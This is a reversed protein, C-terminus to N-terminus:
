GSYGGEDLYRQEEPRTKRKLIVNRHPFRGFRRIIDRHREAHKAEGASMKRVLEVSRNQDALSESHGFPLYFFMRLPVEIAQDHGSRIARDAVGRAQEDSAYMKPTHRFSNRPYQDLLIILALAGNATGEWDRLQGATAARYEAAFRDRFLQDFTPDKAFWRERGAARWFEVVQNAREDESQSKGSIGGSVHAPPGAYSYALEDTLFPVPFGPFMPIAIM